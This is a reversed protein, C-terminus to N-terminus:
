YVKLFSLLPFMFLIFLIFLIFFLFWSANIGALINISNTCFIALFLLYLKYLIGLEFVTGLLFRLPIPVVVATGGAYREVIDVTEKREKKQM